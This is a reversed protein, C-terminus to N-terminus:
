QSASRRRQKRMDLFGTKECRPEYLFLLSTEWSAPWIVKVKRKLLIYFKILGDVCICFTVDLFQSQFKIVGVYM